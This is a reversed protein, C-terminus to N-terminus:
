VAKLKAMNRAEFDVKPGEEEEYDGGDSGAEAITGDPNSM